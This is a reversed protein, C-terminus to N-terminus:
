RLKAAKGAERVRLLLSSPSLLTKKKRRWKETPTGPRNTQFSWCARRPSHLIRPSIVTDEATNPYLVARLLSFSRVRTQVSTILIVPAMSVEKLSASIFGGDSRVASTFLAM